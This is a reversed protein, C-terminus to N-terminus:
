PRGLGDNSIGISTTNETLVVKISELLGGNRKATWACYRQTRWLKGATPLRM